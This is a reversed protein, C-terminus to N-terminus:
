GFVKARMHKLPKAQPTQAVLTLEHTHIHTDRPKNLVGSGKFPVRALM